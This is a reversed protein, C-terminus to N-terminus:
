TFDMVLIDRNTWPTERHTIRFEQKSAMLYPILKLGKVVEPDNQDMDDAMLLGPRALLQRALFFEQLVLEPDNGSDLFVVDFEEGADVMRRMVTLSMGQRFVAELRETLLLDMAPGTDLDVGTLSGGHERVERALTLSSWGDGVQHDEHTSRACGVELFRLARKGSRMRFAAIEERLVDDM